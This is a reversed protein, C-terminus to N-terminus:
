ATKFALGAVPEGLVECVVRRVQANSAVADRLADEIETRGVFGLAKAIKEPAQSERIPCRSVLLSWNGASAGEQLRALEAQFLAKPNVDTEIADLTRMADWKPIAGLVAHRVTKEVSRGALRELEPGIAAIAVSIVRDLSCEANPALGCAILQEIVTPHYYVSEVSYVPLPWVSRDRLRAVEDESRGDRDILGWAELWAIEDLGKSARAAELVNRSGGKPIVSVGEFLLNYLRDDLGERKGEVFIVRRRSGLIDERISNDILASDAVIDAIWRENITVMERLLIVPARFQSVFEIDHTSVIFSCDSRLRVLELILPHLLARHIHREPEDILLVQDPKAALTEILLVLAAREGDSTHSVGYDSGDRKTARVQGDDAFRFQIAFGSVALARNIETLPSKQAQITRAADLTQESVEGTENALFDLSDFQGSRARHFASELETLTQLYLQARENGGVMKARFEFNSDWSNISQRQNVAQATPIEPADAQLVLPRAAVIRQGEDGLVQKFRVMLASKGTGNAGVVFTVAGAAYPVNLDEGGELPISLPATM